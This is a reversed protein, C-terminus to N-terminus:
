PAAYYKRRGWAPRGGWTPAIDLGPFRDDPAPHVKADLRDFAEVVDPFPRDDEPARKEDERDRAARAAYTRSKGLLRDGAVRTAHEIAHRSVIVAASYEEYTQDAAEEPPERPCCYRWPAAVALAVLGLFIGYVVFLGVVGPAPVALFPACSLIALVIAEEVVVDQFCEPLLLLPVLVMMSARAWAPDRYTAEDFSRALAPARWRLSDGRFARNANRSSPALQEFHTLLGGPYGRLVAEHRALLARRTKTTGLTVTGAMSAFRVRDAVKKGEAEPRHCLVHTAHELLPTRYPFAYFRAPDGEHQNVRPTLVGPLLVRFVLLSIPEFFWVSLARSFLVMRFWQRVIRAGQAERMSLAQSLVVFALFAMFAALAAWAAARAAPSSAPAAGGHDEGDGHVKAYILKTRADLKELHTFELFLLEAERRDGCGELAGHWREARAYTALANRYARRALADPDTARWRAVLDRAARELGRRVRARDDRGLDALWARGDLDARADALERHRAVVAVMTPWVARLADDKWAAGMARAGDLGRDRNWRRAPRALRAEVAAVGRPLDTFSTTPSSM